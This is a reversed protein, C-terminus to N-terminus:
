IGWDKVVTQVEKKIVAMVDGVDRSSLGTLRMAEKCYTQEGGSFGMHLGSNHLAVDAIHVVAIIDRSAAIDPNTASPEHHYRITHILFAPLRWKMAVLEGIETHPAEISSKEAAYYSTREATAYQLVTLFEEHFFQDLVLIGIDHLLGALFYDDPEKRRLKKALRNATMACGVTHQWFQERNFLMANSSEFMRVVAIGTVLTKVTNLGLLVIAQQISSIRHSLGYFASNVLRVVRSATAQDHTILAAIQAMSANNSSILAHIKHVVIPLTPLNNISDLKSLVSDSEM